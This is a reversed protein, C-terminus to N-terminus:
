LFLEMRMMMWSVFLSRKRKWNFSRRPGEQVRPLREKERVHMITHARKMKMVKNDGVMYTKGEDKIWEELITYSHNM